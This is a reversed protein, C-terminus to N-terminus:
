SFNKYAHIIYFSPNMQVWAEIAIGSNTKKIMELIENLTPRNKGTDVWDEGPTGILIRGGKKLVRFMESIAADMNTVYELVGFFHINDFTEDKIINSLDCCDAIYHPQQDDPITETYKLNSKDLFFIEDCHQIMREKYGSQVCFNNWGVWLIKGELHLYDLIFNDHFSRVTEKKKFSSVFRNLGKAGIPPETKKFEPFRYIAPTQKLQSPDYFYQISNTCNIWLTADPVMWWDETGVYYQLLENLCVFNKQPYYCNTEFYTYENNIKFIGSFDEINYQSQRNWFRTNSFVQPYKIWKSIGNLNYFMPPAFGFFILKSKHKLEAHINKVIRHVFKHQSHGYEGHSNHTFIYDYENNLLHNKLLETAIIADSELVADHTSKSENKFTEHLLCEELNVGAAACIKQLATRREQGDFLSILHKQHIKEDTFITNAFILEDDSHACVILIKKNELPLRYINAPFSAGPMQNLTAPNQAKELLEKDTFTKSIGSLRLRTQIAWKTTRGRFDFAKGLLRYYSTSFAFLSSFPIKRIFKKFIKKM